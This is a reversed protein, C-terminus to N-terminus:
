DRVIVLASEVGISTSASGRFLFTGLSLSSASVVLLIVGVLFRRGCFCQFSDPVGFFVRFSPCFCILFLILLM